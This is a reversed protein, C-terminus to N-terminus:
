PEVLMTGFARAPLEADYARAGIKVRVARPDAETNVMVVALKGDPRRFALADASGKGDLVTAGAGAYRSFHAFAYYMPTYVARRAARDVVIPSDQPWPRKADISKGTEDLVINWLSYLEAGGALYRRLHRWTALAYAWDNQPRDPDFGPEWPHNGCDTETHWVALGPAAARAAGASPPGV